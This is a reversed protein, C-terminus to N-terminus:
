DGVEWAGLDKKYMEACDKCYLGSVEGEAGKFAIHIGEDLWDGKHGCCFTVRYFESLINDVLAPIDFPRLLPTTKVNDCWNTIIETIRKKQFESKIM